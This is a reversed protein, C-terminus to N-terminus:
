NAEDLLGLINADSYNRGLELGTDGNVRIEAALVEIGTGRHAGFSLVGVIVAAATLALTIPGPASRRPPPEYTLMPVGQQFIPRDHATMLKVGAGSRQHGGLFQM